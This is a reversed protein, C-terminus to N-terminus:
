CYRGEPTGIIHDMLNENKKITIVYWGQLWKPSRYHCLEETRLIPTLLWGSEKARLFSLRKSCLHIIPSVASITQVLNRTAVDVQLTTLVLKWSLLETSPRFEVKHDHVEDVFRNTGRTIMVHTTTEHNHPSPIPIELGPQGLIIM